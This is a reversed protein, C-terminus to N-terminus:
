AQHHQIERRREAEKVIWMLDARFTTVWGPCNDFDAQIM